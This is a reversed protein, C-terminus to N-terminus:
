RPAPEFLGVFLPELYTAGALSLHNDDFYLARPGEAALCREGACLKKAPEIIDAPLRMVLRQMFASRKTEEASEAGYLAEDREGRILSRALRNPVDYGVYPAEMVLWPRAGSARVAAVTPTLNRALAARNEELSAEGSMADRIYHPEGQPAAKGGDGLAYYNWRAALIVDSFTRRQMLTAVANNLDECPERGAKARYRGVGILPPCAPTTILMVNTNARRALDRVLNRLVSAHSDGWLLITRQADGAHWITCVRGEVIDKATARPCSPEDDMRMLKARALDQVAGPHRQIFGHSAYGAGATALLVAAVAAGSGLAFGRPKWRLGHRVPQELYRWSVVALAFSAAILAATELRTVEREAVYRYLVLMPWHWLYWAYSVLGVFVMPRWALVRSVPALAPSGAGSWIVLAAGLVPVIAAAGPFPTRDDYLVIALLIMGLGSIGAVARMRPGGQPAGLALVCGVLLECVRTHPYFFAAIPKEGLVWVSAAFSSLLLALTAVRMAGSGFRAALLLVAPWLLYFQEEVALSWTHLLPAAELAPSFYGGQDAFYLNAAFLLTYVMSKSLEELDQPTMVVFAALFTAALVVSLTPLLRRARREYFRAFSFGGERVGALIIRTILYGSIVFFVDVGVFGGEFLPVRFHHLVVAIIAVARLGDIDPRYHGYTADSAM